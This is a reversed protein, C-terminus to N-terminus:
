RVPLDTAAAARVAAGWDRAREAEGDLLHTHKDVLFSEPGTVTRYGHHRLHRDINRSARGSLLPSIDVRTDFAAALGGPHGPLAELWERVGEDGAHPELTLGDAQDAAGQRSTPRPLGHVHTPAGVIVLDAAVVLEATADHVPLVTVDDGGMGAAIQEAIRRTNGYMSEFLVLTRM